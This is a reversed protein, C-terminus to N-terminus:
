MIMVFGFEPVDVFEVKGKGVTYLADVSPGGTSKTAV